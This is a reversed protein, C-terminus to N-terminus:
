FIISLKRKTFNKELKRQKKVLFIVKLSMLHERVEKITNIGKNQTTNKM